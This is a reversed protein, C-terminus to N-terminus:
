RRARDEVLPGTIRQHSMGRAEWGTAGFRITVTGDEATRLVSIGQARWRQVFEPPSVPASLAADDLVILDPQALDLLATGIPEGRTPVGAVVIDARLAPERQALARQGQSGLDALLLVRTGLIDGLLVLSNDDALSFDDTPAPHLVRWGAWREGPHKPVSQDRGQFYASLQRYSPSRFPIASLGVEGVRFAEDIVRWGGVHRIDGHTFAV